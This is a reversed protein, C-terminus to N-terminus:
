RIMVKPSSVEASSRSQKHLSFDTLRDLAIAEAWNIAKLLMYPKPNKEFLSSIKRDLLKRLGVEGNAGKLFNLHNSKADEEFDLLDDVIQLLEGIESTSQLKNFEELEGLHDLVVILAIEGRKLGDLPIQNKKKAQLLDTLIRSSSQSFIEECKNLYKEVASVEYRLGDSVLDFLSSMMGLEASKQVAKANFKTAFGLFCISLNGAKTSHKLRSKFHCFEFSSKFTMSFAKLWVRLYGTM